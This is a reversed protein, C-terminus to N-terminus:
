CGLKWVSDSQRSRLTILLVRQLQKLLLAQVGQRIVEVKICNVSVAVSIGLDLLFFDDPQSLLVSQM